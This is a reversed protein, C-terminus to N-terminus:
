AADQKFEIVEAENWGEPQEKKFGKIDEVKKALNEAMPSAVQGLPQITTKALEATCLGGQCGHCGIQGEYLILNRPSAVEHSAEYSSVSEVYNKIAEGNWCEPGNSKTRDRM